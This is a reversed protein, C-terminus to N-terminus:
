CGRRERPQSLETVLRQMRELHTGDWYVKGCETCQRFQSARELARPPVRDAVHERSRLALVGNCDMCRTFPRFQGSLDLRDVVEVIQERPDTSRVWYGHTVRGNKLLGRDRTLIIRSHADARDIITDDDSTSDYESDFGLMRLWRSLRGLHVDLIFRTVRLPAPRLRVAPTIDFAEFVPYVSVEDGDDLHYSWDVSVGNVVILDVEPHPVGIAEVADKIAPHGTFPYPFQVQRRDGPLFDNLEAYFRFRATYVPESM